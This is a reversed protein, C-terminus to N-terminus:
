QHINTNLKKTEFSEAKHGLTLFLINKQIM